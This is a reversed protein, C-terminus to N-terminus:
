LSSCGPEEPFDIYGDGDNDRGDACAPPVEPDIESNGGPGICGPDQWADVLGDEDDDLGNSCVATVEDDRQRERADTPTTCHADALDTYGDQDNDVGDNCQAIMSAEFDDREDQDQPSACGPAYPYDILGDGDDDRLNLCATEPAIFAEDDGEADVCSEDAPFDIYGDGDDDEGNACQPLAMPTDERQGQSLQCGPDSFDVLGDNDNDIQDQCPTPPAVDVEDIDGESVCGPDDPFDILEDQDNDVGDNCAASVSLDLLVLTNPLQDPLESDDCALTIGILGIVLCLSLSLSRGRTNFVMHRCLVASSALSSSVKNNESMIM